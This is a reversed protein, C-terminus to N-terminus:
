KKRVLTRGWAAKIKSLYEEKGMLKAELTQKLNIRLFDRMSNNQVLEIIGEVFKEPANAEFILAEKEHILDRAIGVPTTVVPLGSLGAEALALGYGEYLSTQIFINATKYLSALEDHWGSFAVAGSLNLRRALSILRGREPGSGAIVLGVSPFKKRVRALIRLALGLNKEQTLRSVALMIFRWPYKDHLDFTAEANQIKDIDIYIPLTTIEAKTLNSVKNKLDESVVRVWRRM